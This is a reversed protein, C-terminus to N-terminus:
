PKPKTQESDLSPTNKDTKTHQKPNDTYSQAITQQLDNKMKETQLRSREGQYLRKLVNLFAVGIQSLFGIKEPQKAQNYKAWIKDQRQTREEDSLERQTSLHKIDQEAEKLLKDNFKIPKDKIKQIEKDVTAIWGDVQKIRWALWTSTTARAMAEILDKQKPKHPM